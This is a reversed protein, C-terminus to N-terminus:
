SRGLRLGLYNCSPGILAGPRGLLPSRHTACGLTAGLHGWFAGLIIALHALGFKDLAAGSFTELSALMGSRGFSPGLIVSSPEVYGRFIKLLAGFFGLLRASPGLLAGLSVVLTGLIISSPEWPGLLPYWSFELSSGLLALARNKVEGRKGPRLGSRRRECCTSQGRESAASIACREERVEREDRVKVM